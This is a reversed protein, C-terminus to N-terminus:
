NHRLADVIVLRAAHRAPLLSSLTAVAVLGLWCAPLFLPQLFFHVSLLIPSAYDPPTWTLQAWNVLAGIVLAAV